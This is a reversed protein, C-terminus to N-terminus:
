ARKPAVPLREESESDLSLNACEPASFKLVEEPRKFDGKATADARVTTTDSDCDLSCKMQKLAFDGVFGYPCRGM